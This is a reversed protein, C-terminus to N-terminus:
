AAEWGALVTVDDRGRQFDRYLVAATLAVHRQRLGPYGDLSWHSILGDSHLVLSCDPSWPYQFEKFQRVQHGLIGSLSVGHRIATASVIAAAVNGVGSIKVVRAQLDVLVVAGAAGRTHRLGDHMATLTELTTGFPRSLAVRAAATAAEAAYVGHGLGDIVFAMVRGRDITVAWADGCVTEGPKAVSVGALRLGNLPPQRQRGPRMRALVVTGKDPQSYIDFEDALRRIAGLGTGASGATSHGDALSRATDAMGPGRDIAILEVEPAAGNASRILIQGGGPAHKVLNSALETAVLGVRHADSEDFGAREAARRTEQRAAAVHSRDVVPLPIHASVEM